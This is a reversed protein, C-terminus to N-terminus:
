QCVVDYPYSIIGGFDYVNEYGMSILKHAVNKSRVGSRCYILIKSQKDPLEIKARTDIEYDPILIAGDIHKESFEEPTRVDLLIINSDEDLMIRAEQPTINKYELVIKECNKSFTNM